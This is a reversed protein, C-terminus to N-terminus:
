RGRGTVWGCSTTEEVTALFRVKTGVRVMLNVTENLRASLLEM